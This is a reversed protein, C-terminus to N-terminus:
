FDFLQNVPGFKDGFPTESKKHVLGEEKVSQIPM